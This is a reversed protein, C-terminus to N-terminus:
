LPYSPAQKRSTKVRNNARVPSSEASRKFTASPQRAEVVSQSPGENGAVPPIPELRQGKPVSVDQTGGSDLSAPRARKRVGEPEPAMSISSPPSVSDQEQEESMFEDQVQGAHDSPAGLPERMPDVDSDISGPAPHSFWDKSSGPQKGLWDRVKDPAQELQGETWFNDVQPRTICEKDVLYEHAGACVKVKLKHGGTRPGGLEVEPGVNELAQDVEEVLDHIVVTTRPSRITALTNQHYRALRDIVTPILTQKQKKTAWNSCPAILYIVDTVKKKVIFPGLWGSSFSRDVKHYPSFYWTLEGEQLAPTKLRKNFLRAARRFTCKLQSRMKNYILNLNDKLWAAYDAVKLQPHHDPPFGVLAQSPLTAERGFLCFFPSLGHAANTATRYALLALPLVEMWRASNGEVYSRLLSKLTRHFREVRNSRAVYPIGFTQPIELIDLVQKLLDNSFERGNDSHISDPTGHRCILESMLAQAVEPAAKSKLPVALPYRTFNDLITLIYTYGEKTPCLPGVLDVSCKAWPYGVEMDVAYQRQDPPQNRKLRCVACREIHLLTDRSM